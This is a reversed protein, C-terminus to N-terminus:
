SGPALRDGCLRGLADGAAPDPREGAPGPLYRDRLLSQRTVRSAREGRVFVALPETTVEFPDGTWIVLDADAGARIAGYHTDTGWIRAPNITVARLAETWPLGAAVAYGGAERLSVGADFNGRFGVHAAFAILVGARQLIAANDPRAGITDFSVMSDDSPDLVVPIRREALLPAVRWAEEGGMVIVELEYEDALRIAERIDAARAAQIALPMRRELVQGLARLDAQSLTGDGAEDGRETARAEDLAARLLLWPAARSGGAGASAASGTRAFMAVRPVDLIEAGPSLRLAAGLGAFPPVPSKTPTSIARTLGDARAQPLLTSDANLAHQIDFGPGFPGSELAHDVSAEAWVIEVLGLGTDSSMLGPTVLCGTAEITHMGPPLEIDRGVAAIKGGRVVVTADALREMAEGAFVTAGTVAFDDGTEGAAPAALLLIAAALPLRQLAATM